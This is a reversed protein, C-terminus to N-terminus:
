RHLQEEVGGELPQKKKKGYFKIDIMRTCVYIRSLWILMAEKKRLNLLSKNEIM